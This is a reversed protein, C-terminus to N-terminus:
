LEFDTFLVGRKSKHGDNMSKSSQTRLGGWWYSFHSDVPQKQPCDPLYRSVDSGLDSDKM